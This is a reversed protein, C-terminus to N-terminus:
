HQPRRERALLVAVFAGAATAAFNVADNGFWSLGRLPQTPTGCSHPDRETARACAPCWALSQVSAGLVSDLLAGAVGGAFVAWFARPVLAIAAVAVFLAGGIESLTGAATVGGSLGTAIPKLTVISRPSQKVLTGIETGWTDAAAAAFAGAFAVAFRSGALRAGPSGAGTSRRGTFRPGAFYAGLACAQAADRAGTKDVDALATRKRERGVRSLAVSPVFFALLVAAGRLGFAGYTATGVAVAAVAGGRDLANARLAAAGILAAATAGVSFNSFSGGGRPKM